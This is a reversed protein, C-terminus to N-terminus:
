GTATSADFAPVYDMYDVTIHPQRPCAGRLPERAPLLVTHRRFPANPM